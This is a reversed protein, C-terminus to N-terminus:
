VTGPLYGLAHDTRHDRQALPQGPRVRSRRIGRGLAVLDRYIEGTAALTESATARPLEAVITTLESMLAPIAYGLDRRLEHAALHWGRLEARRIQRVLEACRDWSWTPLELSRERHRRSALEARMAVALRLLRKHTFPM